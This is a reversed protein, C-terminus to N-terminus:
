SYLNYIKREFDLRFPIKNSLSSPMIKVIEDVESFAERYEEDM